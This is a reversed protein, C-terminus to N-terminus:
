IIRMMLSANTNILSTKGAGSQAYFLVLREAIVLSLLDGAEAERGFFRDREQRTFSRPGIYPTNTNMM